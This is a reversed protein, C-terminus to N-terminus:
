PKVARIRATGPRRRLLVTALGRAFEEFVARHDPRGGAILALITRM